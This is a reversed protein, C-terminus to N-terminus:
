KFIKNMLEYIERYNRKMSEDMDTATRRDDTKDKYFAWMPKPYVKLNERLDKDSIYTNTGIVGNFRAGRCKSLVFMIMPEVITRGSFDSIHIVMNGGVLLHNWANYLSRFLFSTLWGEFVDYKTSSQTKEVDDSDYIELDFYPPSTFVLDFMEGGIDATEFPEYRIEFHTTNAKMYQAFHDLIQKHGEYLKKNPDYALYREAHHGIAAVLRDGWGASIDLIRRANFHIFVATAASVKFNTADMKLGWLIERIQFSDVTGTTDICKRVLDSKHTYFYEEITQEKDYRKAQVRAYETFIDTIRDIDDYDEKKPMFTLPHNRYKNTRLSKDLWKINYIPENQNITQPRYTIINRFLNYPKDFFYKLFPYSIKSAAVTQILEEKDMKGVDEAPISIVNGDHSLYRSIDIM